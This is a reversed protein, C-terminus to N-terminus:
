AREEEERTIIPYDFPLSLRHSILSSHSLGGGGRIRKYERRREGSYFMIQSSYEFLLLKSHVSVVSHPFSSLRVGDVDHRHDDDGDFSSSM